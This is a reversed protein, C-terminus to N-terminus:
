FFRIPWFGGMSTVAPRSPDYRGWLLGIWIHTAASSIAIFTIYFTHATLQLQGAENMAMYIGWLVVFKKIFTPFTIRISSRSFLAFVLFRFPGYFLFYTSHHMFCYILYHLLICVVLYTSFCIKIIIVFIAVRVQPLIIQIQLPYIIEIQFLFSIMSLFIKFLSVLTCKFSFEIINIINRINLIHVIYM